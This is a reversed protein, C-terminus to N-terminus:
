ELIQKLQPLKARMERGFILSFPTGGMGAQPTSTYATLRAIVESRLLCDLFCNSTRKFNFYFSV